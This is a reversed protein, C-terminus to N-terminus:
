HAKDYAAQVDASIRGRDSVTHGNARAWERVAGLTSGMRATYQAQTSDNAALEARMKTAAAGGSLLAEAAEGSSTTLADYGIVAGAIALGLVLSLLVISVTLIITAVVAERTNTDTFVRVFNDFGTFGIDDPYYANWNMFSIVITAAFPLQTMVIVFILAPLLPARRAWAGAKKMTQPPQGPAAGPAKEGAATQTSM